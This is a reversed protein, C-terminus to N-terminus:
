LVGRAEESDVSTNLVRFFSKPPKQKASRVSLHLFRPGAVRSIPGGPALCSAGSSFSSFKGESPEFPLMPSLASASGCADLTPKASATLVAAEGAGGGGFVSAVGSAPPWRWRAPGVSPVREM